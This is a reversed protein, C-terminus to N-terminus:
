RLMARRVLTEIFDNGGDAAAIWEGLEDPGIFAITLEDSAFRLEQDLADSTFGSAGFMLGLRVTKRRGDMKVRFTSAEKQTVKTKWNKAEVLILPAGLGTWVRGYTARLQVVVDLEETATRLNREVVDFDSVQGLLFAILGEYRRGRIQSSDDNQSLELAKRCLATRTSPSVGVRETCVAALLAEPRAVSAFGDRIVHIQPDLEHIALLLDEEYLTSLPLALHPEHGADRAARMRDVAYPRLREALHVHLAAAPRKEEGDEVEADRVLDPRWSVSGFSVAEGARWASDHATVAEAVRGVDSLEAATEIVPEEEALLPEEELMEM